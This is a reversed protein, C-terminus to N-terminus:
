LVNGCKSVMKSFVIQNRSLFTEKRSSFTEAVQM